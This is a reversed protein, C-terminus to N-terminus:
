MLVNQNKSKLVPYSRREMLLHVIRWKQLLIPNSMQLANAEAMSTLADRRSKIGRNAEADALPVWLSDTPLNGQLFGNVDDITHFVLWRQSDSGEVADLM